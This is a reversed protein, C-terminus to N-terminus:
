NEFANTHEITEVQAVHLRAREAAFRTIFEDDRKPPHKGLLEAGVVAARRPGVRLESKPLVFGFVRISDFTAPPSM